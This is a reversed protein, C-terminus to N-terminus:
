DMLEVVVDDPVDIELLPTYTRECSMIRIPWNPLPKTDSFLEIQNCIGIVWSHLHMNRNLICPAYQGTVILGMDGSSVRMARLSGQACDDHDVDIGPGSCDFTDDSYGQFRLTKM